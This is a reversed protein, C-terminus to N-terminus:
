LLMGIAMVNWLTGVVAYLLITGLNNFFARNPLFYGADLAIPPLLYLFFIDPRLYIDTPLLVINLIGGFFLGLVILLASDPFLSNVRESLHFVIKALTVVFLWVSITLPMSVHDLEIAFIQLHHHHTSAAITGNNQNSSSEVSKVAFAGIAVMIAAFIGEVAM